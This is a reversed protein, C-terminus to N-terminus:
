AGVKRKGEEALEVDNARKLSRQKLDEKYIVQKEADLEGLDAEIKALEAEVDKEDPRPRAIATPGLAIKDEVTDKSGNPLTHLPARAVDDTHNHAQLPTHPLVPSTIHEQKPM